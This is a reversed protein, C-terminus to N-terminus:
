CSEAVVVAAAAGGFLGFFSIALVAFGIAFACAVDTGGEVAVMQEFNLKNM